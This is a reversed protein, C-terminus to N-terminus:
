RNTHLWAFVIRAALAEHRKPLNLQPVTIGELDISAQEPIRELHEDDVLETSLHIESKELYDHKCIGFGRIELLGAIDKPPSAILIDDQRELYVQDDAIMHAEADQLKAHELLRLMTSTKGSGSRGSILIGFGGIQVASAHFLSRTM